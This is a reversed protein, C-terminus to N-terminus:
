QDGTFRQHDRPQCTVWLGGNLLTGSHESRLGLSPLYFSVTPGSLKVLGGGRKLVFLSKATESSLSSVKGTSGFLSNWAKTFWFLHSWRKEPTSGILQLPHLRPRHIQTNVEVCPQVVNNAQWSASLPRSTRGILSLAANGYRATQKHLYVLRSLNIGQM